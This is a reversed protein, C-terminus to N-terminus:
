AQAIQFYREAFYYLWVNWYIRGQMDIYTNETANWNRERFQVEMKAM